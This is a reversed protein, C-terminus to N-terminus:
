GLFWLLLHCLYTSRWNSLFPSKTGWVTLVYDKVLLFSFGLSRPYKPVGGGEMDEKEIILYWVHNLITIHIVMNSWVKWHKNIMSISPLKYNLTKGLCGLFVVGCLLNSTIMKSACPSYTLPRNDPFLFLFCM